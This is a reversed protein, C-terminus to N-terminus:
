ASAYIYLLYFLTDVNESSSINSFRNAVLFHENHLKAGTKALFYEMLEAVKRQLSLDGKWSMEFLFIKEQSSTKLSLKNWPYLFFFFFRSFLMPFRILIKDLFDVLFKLEGPQRLLPVPETHWSTGYFWSLKNWECNSRWIKSCLILPMLLYIDDQWEKM